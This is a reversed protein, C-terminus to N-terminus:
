QGPNRKAAARIPAKREALVNELTRKMIATAEEPVLNNGNYKHALKRAAAMGASWLLEEPTGRGDKPNWSTWINDKDFQTAKANIERTGSAAISAVHSRTKPRKPATGVKEQLLGCRKHQKDIEVTLRRIERDLQAILRKIVAADVLVSGRQGITSITSLLAKKQIREKQRDARQDSLEKIRSRMECIEDCRM